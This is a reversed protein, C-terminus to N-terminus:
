KRLPGEEQWAVIPPVEEPYTQITVTQDSDYLVSYLQETRAMIKDQEQIEKAQKELFIIMVNKGQSHARRIKKM